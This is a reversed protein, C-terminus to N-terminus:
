RVRGAQPVARLAARVIAATERLMTANACPMPSIVVDGRADQLPIGAFLIREELRGDRRITQGTTPDVDIAGTEVRGDADSFSFPRIRGAVRLSAVLPDTTTRVDPTRMRTEILVQARVTSEEVVCSRAEFAGDVIDVLADPGIFRVIGARELALLQETRFAPPGSGVMGGFAEFERLAPWSGVTVGGFEALLSVPKRAGNIEWLATKLASDAGLNAEALDHTLWDVVASEFDAPAWFREGTFPHSQTAIDFRPADDAVLGDIPTGADIAAIVADLDPVERPHTRARTRWYAEHADAYIRPALERAFDVAPGDRHAALYARLRRNVPKPPLAGYRSKARFPVGRRSTAHIIPERGSPVYDGDVYRGGRGLTLLTVTDFFGMGQGRAIVAEGPEIGELPQHIPSEPEILLLGAERAAAALTAEDGTAPQPTWGLSAIASDALLWDGRSLEIALKSSAIEMPGFAADEIGAAIDHHEVVRVNAPLSARAWDYAWALYEGYLSRTPHSEPRMSALERAYDRAVHEPIPQLQLPALREPAIAAAEPRDAILLAWEYLTPGPVIRGVNTVSADSFITVADALTNMVLLRNQDTAWVRGPGFAEPDVVHITVDGDLPAPPHPANALAAIRELAIVGRPGMGILALTASSMAELM